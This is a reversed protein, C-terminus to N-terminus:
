IGLGHRRRRVLVLGDHHDGISTWAIAVFGQVHQKGAPRRGILAFGPGKGRIRGNRHESEHDGRRVIRHGRALRQVVDGLPGVPLEDDNWRLIRVAEACGHQGHQSADHRPSSGVRQQDGVLGVSLDRASQASAALAFPPAEPQIGQHSQLRPHVHKLQSAHKGGVPPIGHHVRAPGHDHAIGGVLEHHSPSVRSQHERAACGSLQLDARGQIRCAMEGIGAIDRKGEPQIGAVVLQQLIGHREPRVDRPIGAALSEARRRSGISDSGIGIRRNGPRSERDRALIGGNLRIKSPIRESRHVARRAISAVGGDPVKRDEAIPRHHHHKRRIGDLAFLALKQHGHAIRVDQHVRNPHLHELIAAVRDPEQQTAVARGFERRLQREHLPCGHHEGVADQLRTGEPNDREIGYESEVLGFAVRRDQAPGIRTQTKQICRPLQRVGHRATDQGDPSQVRDAHSRIHVGKQHRIGRVADVDRNGGPKREPGERSARMRPAQAQNGPLGREHDGRRAWPEIAIHADGPRNARVRQM